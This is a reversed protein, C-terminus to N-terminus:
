KISAGVRNSAAIRALDVVAKRPSRPARRPSRPAKRPVRARSAAVRAAVRAARASPAVAVARRFMLQWKILIM